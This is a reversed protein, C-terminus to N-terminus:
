SGFLEEGDGTAGEFGKLTLNVTLGEVTGAYCIALGAEFGNTIFGIGTDAGLAGGAKLTLGV